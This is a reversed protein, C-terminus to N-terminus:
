TRVGLADRLEPLVAWRFFHGEERNLQDLLALAAGKQIRQEIFFDADLTYTHEGDEGFGHQILVYAGEPEDLRLRAQTRVQDPGPTIGLEAGLLSVMAPQVLEIWPRDGLGLAVRNIEDRYRLGIREFFAPSYATELAALAREIERRLHEWGLYRKTTIAVFNPALSIASSEDETEFWHTVGGIQGFVPIQEIVQALEPPAGVVGQQRYVPYADRIEEQFTDPARAGIALINPFRIQCIVEIITDKEFVIRDSPPFRM